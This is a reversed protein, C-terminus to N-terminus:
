YFYYSVSYEDDDDDNDDDGGGTVKTHFNKKLIKNIYCPLHLLKSM